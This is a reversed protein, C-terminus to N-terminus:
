VNLTELWNGILQMFDKQLSDLLHNDTHGQMGRTEKDNWGEPVQAGSPLLRPLLHPGAFAQDIRQEIHDVGTHVGWIIVALHTCTEDVSVETSVQTETQDQAKTCSLQALHHGWSLWTVSACGFGGAYYLTVEQKWCHQLTQKQICCYYARISKMKLVLSYVVTASIVRIFMTLNSLSQMKGSFCGFCLGLGLM